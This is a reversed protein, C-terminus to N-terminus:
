VSIDKFDLEASSVNLEPRKDSEPVLTPKGQPREICDQALSAFNKKGVLRELETLSRLELPKYIDESEYGDGMLRSALTVTDTVKRISRGEVLKHGKFRKGSIAQATAYDEVASCWTKITPILALVDGMQEDSILEKIENQTYCAMMKNALASCRAKVKCFKCWNGASHEGKGEIALKAMPALKSDAWEKLDKISIEWESINSLRPQVITLTARELNYDLDYDAM